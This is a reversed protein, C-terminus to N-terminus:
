KINSTISNLPRHPSLHVGSSCLRMDFQQSISPLAVASGPYITCLRSEKDWHRCSHMEKRTGDIAFHGLPILMDNLFELSVRPDSLTNTHKQGLDDVWHDVKGDLMDIIGQRAAKGTIPFHECCHGTCVGETPANELDYPIPIEIQHEAM